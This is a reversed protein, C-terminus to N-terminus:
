FACTRWSYLNKKSAGKDNEQMQGRPVLCTRATPSSCFTSRTARPDNDPTTKAERPTKRFLKNKSLPLWLFIKCKKAILHPSPPPCLRM